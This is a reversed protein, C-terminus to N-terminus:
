DIELLHEGSRSIIGVNEQQEASLTSDRLLVQTFGLIANLPTRLEHSMNAVFASKAKSASAASEEAKQRVRVEWQLRQNQEQLQQSLQRITLQNKVRALVEEVQFPKTIYDIGGVTFARVKDLVDDLASIFIVPVERTQEDAKLLKCVEYGNLDPMKIDLLILDPAASRVVRLAM